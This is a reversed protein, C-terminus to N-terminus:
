SIAYAYLRKRVTPAWNGNSWCSPNLLDKGTYRYVHDPRDKSDARSAYWTITATQPKGLGKIGKFINKLVGAIAGGIGTAKARKVISTDDQSEIESRREYKYQLNTVNVTQWGDRPDFVYNDGLSHAKEFQSESIARASKVQSATTTLFFTFFGLLCTLTSQRIKM